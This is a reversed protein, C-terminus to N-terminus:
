SIAARWAARRLKKDPSLFRPGFRRRIEQLRNRLSLIKSYCEGLLNHLQQPRQQKSATGSPPSANSTRRGSGGDWGHTRNRPDAERTRGTHQMCSFAATGSEIGFTELTSLSLPFLIRYSSGPLDSSRASPLFRAVPPACARLDDTQICACPRVHVLLRTPRM